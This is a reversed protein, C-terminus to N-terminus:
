KQGSTNERQTNRSQQKGVQYVEGQHIGCCRRIEPFLAAKNISFLDLERLINRRIKVIFILKKGSKNRYRLTRLSNGEGRGDGPRVSYLSGDQKMIRPNSRLPMIFVHSLLDKKESAHSLARIRKIKGRWGTKGCVPSIGQGAGGTRRKRM